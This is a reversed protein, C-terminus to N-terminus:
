TMKKQSSNWTFRRPAQEKYSFKKLLISIEYFCYYSRNFIHLYSRFLERSLMIAPSPVGHFDTCPRAPLNHFGDDPGRSWEEV